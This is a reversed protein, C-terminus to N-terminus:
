DIALRLCFLALLFTLPTFIITELSNTSLINGITNLFFLIVMMWLFFRLLSPSTRIRTYGASILLVTVMLSNILLSISEFVIMDEKSSLRGGWVIGNPIVGTLVLLHFTITCSLIFIAANAAIRKTIISRIMNVGLCIYLWYFLAGHSVWFIM